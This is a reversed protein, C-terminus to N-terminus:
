EYKNKMDFLKEIWKDYYAAKKNGNDGLTVFRGKNNVEFSGPVYIYTYLFDKVSKNNVAADPTMKALVPAITQAVKYNWELQMKEINARDQKSVKKNKYIANIQNDLAQKGDYLGADNVLTRIDTLSIKNQWKTTENYNLINLPSNYQITIDGTNYDEAYYGFVSLDDSSRFGMRAMTEVAAARNIQKQQATLYKSYSNEPLQSGEKSELNMLSIVAAFKNSDFTGDYKEVLNNAVKYVDDMFEQQKTRVRSLVENRANESLKNGQLATIDDNYNKDNLLARKRDWLEKVARNWALNVEEGYRDVTLRDAANEFYEQGINSLAKGFSTDKDVVASGLSVLNDLLLVNGQGVLNRLVKEAMTASMFGDLWNGMMRALSGAQTNMPVREGTDYDIMFNDRSLKKMTYPDYGTAMIFGAKELPTMLTSSIKAVGPILNREFINQELLEDADINMFGDLEIPSAGLLDNMLLDGFSHDSVGQLSEIMHQVPTVFNSIEQPVPISIIQGNLVFTIHEAKEYEPIQQYIRRDEENSFTMNTLAIVPVVYGGIIRTSVGVPDWALLRWFSKQGNIASGLYPVTKTLNAFHYSQRAFNTTAESQLFEAVKRSQQASLGQKMSGLLANNYVRKRLYVERATNLRELNNQWYDLNDTVTEWATKDYVGNANRAYKAEKGFNYINQELNADINVEGLKMERQAILKNISDGTEDSQKLLTAYVDPVMKQYEEAFREGFLEALEAEVRTNTKFADGMMMANGVDRFAQNVLSGPVVGGTTGFRFIRVFQQQLEGFPGRKMPRPMSTFMDAVTPSVEVYEEYGYAGYTKIVNDGKVAKTIDQNLEKIHDFMSRKAKESILNSGQRMLRNTSEAYREEIRSMLMETTENAWDDAMKQVGAIKKKRIKANEKGAYKKNINATLAQNYRDSATKYFRNKIGTRNEYLSQLTTYEVLDDLGATGDALANAVDKLEASNYNATIAEEIFDEIDEEVNKNFDPIDYRERIAALKELNEKYLTEARFVDERYKAATITNVVDPNNGYKKYVYQRKINEMFDKDIDSNLRFNDVTYLKKLDSPSIEGADALKAQALKSNWVAGQRRALTTAETKAEKAVYPINYNRGVGAMMKEDLMKRSQPDLKKRFEWLNNDSRTANRFLADNNDALIGNVETIPADNIYNAKYSKTLKPNTRARTRALKGGSSAAEMNAQQVFWNAGKKDFFHNFLETDANESVLKQTNREVTEIAVKQASNSAEAVIRTKDGEVVTNVKFGLDKLMETMHLRNTQRAVENIDDFLVLSIDQFKEDTKGWSYEDIGRPESIKLQGGEKKWKLWETQKQTRMYGGEFYGSNNWRMLQEEALVGESVRLEQTLGSLRKGEELLSDAADVLAKPQTRRFDEVVETYYEIEKKAGAVKDPIKSLEAYAKARELRYQGLIYENTKENIIGFTVKEVKGAKKGSKTVEQAVEIMRRHKGGLGAADEAKIVKSLKEVYAKRAGDLDPNDLYFRAVISSVDRKYMDNILNNAEALTDAMKGKVERAKELAEEWTDSSNVYGSLEGIKSNAARLIRRETLNQLKREYKGARNYRFQALPGSTHEEAIKRLKDTKDKLWEENGHHLWTKINESAQGVRAKIWSVGPATRAQVILGLDSSGFKMLGKGIGLGIIEGAANQTLQELAYSKAEADDSEMLTRFLKPDNLSIDVVAQALIDAGKAAIAGAKTIAATLKFSAVMVEAAKATGMLRLSLDTGVYLSEAINKTNNVVDAFEAAKGTMGLMQATNALSAASAGYKTIATNITNNIASTAFKSATNGAWVSVAIEMAIPTITNTVSGWGARADSLKETTSRREDVWKQLDPLLTDKAWTLHETSGPENGAMKDIVDRAGNSIGEIANIVSADFAAAGTIIGLMTEGATEAVNRWFAVDPDKGYIFQRFATMEAYETPDSYDGKKFYDDVAKFVDLIDEDSHKERSWEEKLDGWSVMHSKEDWGNINKFVNMNKIKEPIAQMTSDKVLVTEGNKDNYELAVSNMKVVDEDSLEVGDKNRTDEKIKEFAYAQEVMSPMDKNFDELWEEATKTEESDKIMAYKYDKNLRYNQTISKAVNDVQETFAKNKFALEPATITIKGTKKDLTMKSGVGPNESLYTKGTKSKGGNALAGFDDLSLDKGLKTTKKGSNDKVVYYEDTVLEVPYSPQAKYPFGKNENYM